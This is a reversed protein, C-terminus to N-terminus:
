LIVKSSFISLFIYIIIAFCKYYLFYKYSLRIFNIRGSKSALRRSEGAKQSDFFFTFGDSKPNLVYPITFIPFFYLIFQLMYIVAHFADTNPTIRTRMKGCESQIHLSVGYRETNLGFLPFYPGSYNWIRISKVCHNM